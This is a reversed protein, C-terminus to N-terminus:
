CAARAGFRQGAKFGRLRHYEAPQKRDIRRIEAIKARCHSPKTKVIRAKGILHFTRRSEAETEAAPKQTEQMEFDNLLPQLALEIEIEDRGRWRNDVPNKLAAPIHQFQM